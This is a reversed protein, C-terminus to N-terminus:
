RAPKGHALPETEDADLRGNGNRDVYLAVASALQEALKQGQEGAQDEPLPLGALWTSLDFGLLLEVSGFGSEDPADLDISVSSDSTFALEDGSNSKGDVELTASDDPSSAIDLRVSCLEIAATTVRESPHQFLDYGRPDLAIERAGQTCPVLTVVVRRLLARTVEIEVPATEGGSGSQGGQGASAESGSEAPAGGLAAAPEDTIPTFTLTVEQEVIDGLTPGGCALTLPLV